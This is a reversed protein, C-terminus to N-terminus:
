MSRRYEGGCQYLLATIQGLSAYKVTQMLEEFINGGSLAVRRLRELAQSNKEGARVIFQQTRRIQQEKEEPSARVVAIHEYDPQADESLYTNVGM